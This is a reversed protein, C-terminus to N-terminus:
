TKLWFGLITGITGFAWERNEKTTTRFLMLLAALGFVLSLGLQVYLIQNSGGEPPTGEGETATTPTPQAALANNKIATSAPTTTELAQLRQRLNQQQQEQAQVEKQFAAVQPTTGAGVIPKGKVRPRQPLASIRERLQSATTESKQLETQIAAIQESNGGSPEAASIATAAGQLAARGQDVQALKTQLGEVSARESDERSKYISLGLLSLVTVVFLVIRM